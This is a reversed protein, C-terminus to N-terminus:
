VTRVPHADPGLFHGMNPNERRGCECLGCKSKMMHGVNSAENLKTKPSIDSEWELGNAPLMTHKEEETLLQLTM